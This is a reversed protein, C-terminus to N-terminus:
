FPVREAYGTLELYGRGRAGADSALTVAGEWYLTGTSARGDLEQDDFLPRVTWREGGVRVTWEVPYAVGTRPSTWRRGPEFAVAAGEFAQVRGERDRRTATSWLTSGQRTRIRFATLAGGDELNVGLWDWGNAEAALLTSSWEHDLWAVGSVERRKGGVVVSGTAKLQPESYYWSAHGPSPGKRSFGRDGQLLPPQTAELVLDMALEEGAVHAVYREGERTLTWDDLKLDTEGERARVLSGLTRGSRQDHVLRGAAGDSIAAHAFLLQKPSFRSANAEAGPNRVRFFTVQFGMPGERSALHGTVYWWELRFGPHAGRDAPFALPRGPVVADFEAARAALPLVPLLLFARRHM